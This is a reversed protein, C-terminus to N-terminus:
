LTSGLVRVQKKLIAFKTKQREKTPSLVPFLNMNPDGDECDADDRGHLRLRYGFRRRHLDM